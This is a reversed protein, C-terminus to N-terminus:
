DKSAVHWGRTGIQWRLVGAMAFTRQVDREIDLATFLWQPQPHWENSGLVLSFEIPRILRSGREHRYNVYDITVESTM